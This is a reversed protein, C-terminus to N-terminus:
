LMKQMFVLTLWRDFKWGVELMRGAEEFGHARHFAISAANESDIGGVLTHVGHGFATDVIARLLRAGHGRGRHAAAVYVSHEATHRYAPRDRFVGYSAFGATFGDAESVLVPWQGAQKATFWASIRGADWPEDDYWATTNLIADNVIALIAPLDAAAAPRIVAADAM